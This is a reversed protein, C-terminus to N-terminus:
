NMIPISIQVKTGAPNNNSDFLDLIRLSSKLGKKSLLLLRDKTIQIGYSKSQSISFQESKKEYEMANQRGVGNDEITCVLFKNQISFLISINGHENKHQLGHWIANEIFPQIIMPTIKLTETDLEKEVNITYTFKNSFRMTELELYLVLTSIEQDLPVLTHKSNDLISRILKAFKSLYNTAAVV